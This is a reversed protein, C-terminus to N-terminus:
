SESPVLGLLAIIGEAAVAAGYLFGAPHGVRDWLQGAVVSALLSLLGTTATYWGLGSAHVPSPVLDTALAKGVSRAIGQYLGYLKDENAGLRDQAIAIPDSPMGNQDLGPHSSRKPGLRDDERAGKHM